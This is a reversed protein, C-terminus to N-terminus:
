QKSGGKSKRRIPSKKTFSGVGSLEERIDPHIELDRADFGLGQMLPWMQGDKGAQGPKKRYWLEMMTDGIFYIKEGSEPHKLPISDVGFDEPLHYKDCFEMITLNKSQGSVKKRM